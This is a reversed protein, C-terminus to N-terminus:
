SVKFYLVGEVAWSEANKGARRAARAIRAALARTSETGSPQLRGVKGTKVLKLYADYEAQRRRNAGAGASPKKPATAEDIVTLTAM